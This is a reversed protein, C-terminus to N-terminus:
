EPQSEVSEFAQGDSGKKGSSVLIEEIEKIARLTTREHHELEKVSKELLDKLVVTETKSLGQKNLAKSYIGPISHKKEMISQLKKSLEDKIKKLDELSKGRYIDKKYM